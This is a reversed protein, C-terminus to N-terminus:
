FSGALSGCALSTLTLEVSSPVLCLFFFLQSDDHDVDPVSFIALALHGPIRFRFLHQVGRLFAKPPSHDRGKQLLSCTPLKFPGFGTAKRHDSLSSGQRGADLGGIYIFIAVM